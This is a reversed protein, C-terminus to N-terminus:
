LPNFDDPANECNVIKLKNEGVGHFRNRAIQQFVSRNSTKTTRSAALTRDLYSLQGTELSYKSTICRSQSVLWKLYTTMHWAFSGNSVLWPVVVQQAWPRLFALSSRLSCLCGYLFYICLNCKWEDICCKMVLGRFWAKPGPHADTNTTCPASM